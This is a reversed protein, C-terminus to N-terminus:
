GRHLLRQVREAAPVLPVDVLISVVSRARAAREGGADSVGGGPGAAAEEARRVGAACPTGGGDAAAGVRIRCGPRWDAGRGRPAAGFRPRVARAPASRRVRC